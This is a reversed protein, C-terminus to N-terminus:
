GTRCPRLPAPGAAPADHRRGPHPPGDPDAPHSRRVPELGPPAFPTRWLGPQVRRPRDNRVELTLSVDANGPMCVDKCMLWDATAQLTVPQGAPLNAPPSIQVFLYAQGEYGHGTVVGKTDKVVHPTPWVIPGATFGPPLKWALSTPYGTGANIWYSHWHEEHNLSLAVWFPKGPQIAASPAVLSAAVPSAGVPGALLLLPVLSVILRRLLSM